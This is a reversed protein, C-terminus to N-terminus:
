HSHLSRAPCLSGISCLLEADRSSFKMISWCSASRLLGLAEETGSKGTLPDVSCGSSTSAHLYARYLKNTLSVTGTLCGLDTDIRYTQYTVRQLAPGRTDIEVRVHHGDMEFSIMGEPILVCRPVLEGPNVNERVKPRLVLRNVLGFLTGASQNEDYVMGRMNHSQLDGDEDVYFSLGYRPLTVSLHPSSSPQDSDNPTVTVLLNHPSDLPKLLGSVMVWSQSRVDVLVERGKHMRYRGPTCDINWNESSAEWLKDIPRIEMVSTSLNLWHVHGKILVAPVDNELKERPILEIIDSGGTATRKARIVLDKGRLAFSVQSSTQAM